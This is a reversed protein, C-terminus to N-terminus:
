QVEEASMERGLMTGQEHEVAAAVEDQTDNSSNNTAALKAARQRPRKNIKKVQFM